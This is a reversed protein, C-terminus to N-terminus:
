LASAVDFSPCAKAVGPWDRHGRVVIGPYRQRYEAVLRRLTAKQAETRTDKPKKNQADVGGVYCIGINGTNKGGVHAGRRDDALTRVASGDLEVVIHYSVQGFKAIDWQSITAAKVDRGEPTAACHLTLSHIKKPDMYAPTTMTM